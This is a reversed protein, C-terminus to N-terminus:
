AADKLIGNMIMSTIEERVTEEEYHGISWYRLAWVTCTFYIFNAFLDTNEIAFIGNKKGKALIDEWLKMFKKEILFVKERNEPGLARTESYVLNIYRRNTNIYRFYADIAEKLAEIPEKEADVNKRFFDFIEQMCTSTILYLIDEKNEVYQYMSPISINAAKAIDRISAAGYGKKAIVKCAGQFIQLRRKEATTELAGNGVGLDVVDIKDNPNENSEKNPKKKVSETKKEAEERFTTTVEAILSNPSPNEDPSVQYVRSRWVHDEDTSAVPKAVALLSEGARAAFHLSSSSVISTTRGARLSARVGATNARIALLPTVIEKCFSGPNAAGADINITARAEEATAATILPEEVTLLESM